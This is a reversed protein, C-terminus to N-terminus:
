YLDPEAITRDDANGCVFFPFRNWFLLRASLWSLGDAIQAVFAKAIRSRQRLRRGAQTSRKRQRFGNMARSEVDGCKPAVAYIQVSAANGGIYQRWIEGFIAFADEILSVIHGTQQRVAVIGDAREEPVAPIAAREGPNPHM